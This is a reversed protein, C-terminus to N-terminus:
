EYTERWTDEGYQSLSSAGVAADDVNGLIQIARSHAGSGLQALEQRM